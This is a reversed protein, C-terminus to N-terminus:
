AFAMRIASLTLDSTTTPGTYAMAEIKQRNIGGDDMQMPRAGTICLNPMYFGVASGSVANLTICAHYRSTSTWLADNGAVADETWSLKISDPTRRAGVITQYQNAGGPGSLPVVGLTWDISLSRHTRKARTSTGVTNLFFSGAAVPAPSYANQTVVSPFTTTTYQWWSVGVTMEIAPIEGTNLGTLSISKVFCGHLEYQLNASLTRLRFSAVTGTTPNESPYIVTSSHVVDAGSPANDLATLLTVTSAAHTAVAQFQGNGRGDGIAGVRCMSGANFGTATAVTLATATGASATTGLASSVAANGVLLGLFTEIADITTAGNTGTGHGTLWMKLKIESGDQAGVIHQTGDNRYQIVRAPAVKDHKLGTVDVKDLVPLRHTAFTSVNEGWASEVEYEIAGLASANSM